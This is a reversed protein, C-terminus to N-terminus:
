FKILAVNFVISYRFISLLIKFGSLADISLKNYKKNIYKKM